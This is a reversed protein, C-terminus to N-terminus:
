GDKMKQEFCIYFYGQLYGEIEYETGQLLPRGTPGYLTRSRNLGDIYTYTCKAQTTPYLM